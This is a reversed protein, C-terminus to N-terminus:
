GTQRFSRSTSGAGALAFGALSGVGGARLFGGLPIEGYTTQAGSGVVDPKGDDNVDWAIRNVAGFVKASVLM